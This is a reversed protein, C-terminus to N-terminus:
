CGRRKEPGGFLVSYTVVCGGNCVNGVDCVLSCAGEFVALVAQLMLALV